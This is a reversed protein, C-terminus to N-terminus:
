DLVEYTLGDVYYTAYYDKDHDKMWQQIKAISALEAACTEESDPTKGLRENVETEMDNIEAQTFRREKLTGNVVLKSGALERNFGGIEGKAEVRITYLQQEGTLFCRKGSHKCVHTVYGHITVPKDVHLEAVALLTDVGYGTELLKAETAAVDGSPKQGSRHCSAAFIMALAILPIMFKKM